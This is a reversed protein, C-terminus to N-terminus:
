APRERAQKVELSVEASLATLRQQRALLAPSAELGARAIITGWRHSWDHARLAATMNAARARALRDKQSALERLFDPLADPNTPLQIVADPWDFLEAFEPISPASGIMVSGTAAGEFLRAPLVQEGQSDAAKHAAATVHDYCVFFKSRKLKSFTLFRHQAWDQVPSDAVRTSDYVYFFSGERAMDLLRLHTPESRRGMSFVDITRAPYAPYPTAEPVDVATPLFTCPVGTWHEVLPIAARHLLFVYNFERLLKLYRAQRPLASAWTEVIYAIKLGSRERWGRLANLESLTDMIAGVFVFVDYNGELETKMARPPRTMGFSRSAQWSIKEFAKDLVRSGAHAPPAIVDANAVEAIVKVFEYVVSNFARPWAVFDSFVATRHPM